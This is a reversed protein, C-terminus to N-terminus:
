IKAKTLEGRNTMWKKVKTRAWDVHVRDEITAPVALQSTWDGQIGKEVIERLVRRLTKGSRTKPIRDLIVVGALTAIGGIQKRVLNRLDKVITKPPTHAVTVFALPMHGSILSLIFSHVKKHIQCVSLM